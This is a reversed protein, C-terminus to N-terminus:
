GVRQPPQQIIKKAVPISSHKILNKQGWEERSEAYRRRFCQCWHNSRVGESARSQSVHRSDMRKTSSVKSPHKRSRSAIPSASTRPKSPGLRSPITSSATLTNEVMGRGIQRTSSIKRIHRPDCRDPHIIASFQQLDFPNRDIMEPKALM